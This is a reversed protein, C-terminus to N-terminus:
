EATDPAPALNAESEITLTVLDGLGPLYAEMGFESRNLSTTASFGATKVGMFNNGIQNLEVSLVVPKTIGRLTLDGTVLATTEGTLEVATSVFHADPYTATDFFDPKQLHEDLAPVGSSVKTVPITLEVKSDAPADEDLVLTGSVNMFKGTPASFGFHDIQFQIATHDPDLTYTEPAAFATPTAILLLASLSPILRNM